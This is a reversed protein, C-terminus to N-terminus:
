NGPGMAATKMKGEADYEEVTGFKALIERTKSADGVAVIQLHNLDVYKQAIRQIDDATIAEVKAPYTDWYNAPLEYLKQTVINNLLQQPSELSLAFGGVIARKANELEVTTVKEDRLRKLEYMFERMAGETVDTRVESSSILTGRFKSGTFNSYAGYTYGNKERLNLFLRAAPGAGLVQNLMLMGFYDENTREIGLNGLQLVTQVSGPRDILQIRAAGPAPAAPINMSPVDGRQWGGFAKELKPLIQKLTVDGVIALMANNPRYYTSHFKALDASTVRKLSEAPLAALGAPHQGGYIARAFHEQALFQPLSRQFSLQQLTRAKYKDVEEQPFTPNRIIDAYIGLMPDLNEVLGGMIVNSTMASLGSSTQLTAGLTEAQEAIDKSKRTTTGERLLTATMTALGRYDSPDALGGSLIVMQMNVTPVRHSELLIVRLGNSLTAEQAKPLKVKLVDKNVPVRGKIEAGTVSQGQQAPAGSRQAMVTTSCIAGIILALCFKNKLM